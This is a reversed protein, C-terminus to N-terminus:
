DISGDAFHNLGEDFTSQILSSFQSYRQDHYRRLDVLVEEDYFGTQEDGQWTDIAYCRADLQIERM